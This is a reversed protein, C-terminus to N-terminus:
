RRIRQLWFWLSPSDWSDQDGLEVPFVRGTICGGHTTLFTVWISFVLLLDSSITLDIHTQFHHVSLRLATLCLSALHFSLPTLVSILQSFGPDQSSCGPGRWPHVEGSLIPKGTAPYVPVLLSWSFGLPDRVAKLVGSQLSFVVKGLLWLSHLLCPRLALTLPWLFVQHGLCVTSPKEEAKQDWM